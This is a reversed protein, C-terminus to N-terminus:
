RDRSPGRPASLGAPGRPLPRGSRGAPRPPARGLRPQQVRPGRGPQRRPPLRHEAGRLGGGAATLQGREFQHALLSSRACAVTSTEGSPSAACRGDALTEALDLEGLRTAPPRAPTCGGHDPQGGHFPELAERFRGTRVLERLQDTSDEGPLTVMPSGPGWYALAYRSFGGLEAEVEELNDVLLSGLREFPDGDNEQRWIGITLELTADDVDVDGDEDLDDDAHNYHIRLEAPRSPNFTLGAPEFQFLLRAPDVVRVTILVSDGDAIPTGDPRASLAEADV